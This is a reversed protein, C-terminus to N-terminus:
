GLDVPLFNEARHFDPDGGGQHGFCLYEPQDPNLIATVNLRAEQLGQGQLVPLDNIDVSLRASWFGDGWEAWVQASPCPLVAARQRYGSFVACWWAGRPSLNFEQYEGLPGMVFLEAVDREWLGEVFDGAQHTIECEPTKLASFSYTLLGDQLSLRFSAPYRAAQGFWDLELAQEPGETSHHVPVSLNM